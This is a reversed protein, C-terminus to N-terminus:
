VRCALYNWIRKCFVVGLPSILRAVDDNTSNGWLISPKPPLSSSRSNAGYHSRQALCQVGNWEEPMWIQSTRVRNGWSWFLPSSLACLFVRTRGELFWSDGQLQVFDVAFHSLYWSPWFCTWLCTWHSLFYDSGFSWSGLSCLWQTPSLTAPLLAQTRYSFFLPLSPCTTIGPQAVPPSAWLQPRHTPTFWIESFFCSM